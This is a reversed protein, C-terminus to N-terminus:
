TPEAEIRKTHVRLTNGLNEAVYCPKGGPALVEHLRTAGDVTRHIRDGRAPVIRAGDLVMGEAPVLFDDSRVMEMLGDATLLEHDSRGITALLEVSASGRVYLVTESMHKERVGELWAAANDLM